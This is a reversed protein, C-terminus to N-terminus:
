FSFFVFSSVSVSVSLTASDQLRMERKASIDRVTQDMWLTKMDERCGAIVETADDDDDDGCGLESHKTRGDLVDKWRRVGFERSQKQVAIPSNADISGIVSRTDAVGAAGLRRQLDAEVHRLPGLRTLLTHHKDTLPASFSRSAVEAEAETSTTDLSNRLLSDANMDLLSLPRSTIVDGDMEAQLTEIIAIISRLLNLQVVVRWSAREQSWAAHAYKMRFNKLATSKGSESQGLFLVKVLGRQQKKLAAKEARLEEDIRESVRRAKWEKEERLAREEANENWPPMLFVALPDNRDIAGTM